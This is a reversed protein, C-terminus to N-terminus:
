PKETFIWPILVEFELQLVPKPLDDHVLSIEKGFGFTFNEIGVTNAENWVSNSCYKGEVLHGVIPYSGVYLHLGDKIEGFESLPSPKSPNIGLSFFMEMIRPDFRKTSEKFNECYLCDCLDIDKDYYEKTKKMDVELVWDFLNIQNM